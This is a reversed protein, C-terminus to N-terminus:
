TPRSSGTFFWESSNCAKQRASLDMGPKRNHITPSPLSRLDSSLMAACNPMVECTVNQPCCSSTDGNKEAASVKMMDDVESPNGM